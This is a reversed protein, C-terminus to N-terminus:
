PAAVNPILVIMSAAHRVRGALSGAVVGSGFFIDGRAPGIIASGTDQAIMVRRFPHSPQEPDALGDAEVWVPAHFTHLTRDIALSRGAALPVGVAGIPGEGERQSTERFFIFSRNERMLARGEERHAKLWTELGDKDASDRSLIGREVALRGISTYAHGSKGDFAVRMARGDPLKLRASGQVHIFFADVADELWALELDHGVLAGAEIEARDFFPVVGTASKRGFRMEPDWGAPRAEAGVEVLDDPRRYLPVSYRGTRALSADVEPEFYGTIFGSAAIRHPVFNEEFFTRAEDRSLWPPQALAARAVDRLRAPDIGLARQKPLTEVLSAASTLFTAYAESHDDDRWGAIASFTTPELLRQAFASPAVESM